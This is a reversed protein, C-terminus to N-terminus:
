QTEATDKSQETAPQTTQPPAAPEIRGLTLQEYRHLGYLLGSLVALVAIVALWLARGALLWAIGALASASALGTGAYAGPRTATVAPALVLVVLGALVPGTVVLATDSATLAALGLSATAIAYPTGAVLWVGVVGIGALVGDVGATVAFALVVGALALLTAWDRRDPRVVLCSETSLLPIRRRPQSM